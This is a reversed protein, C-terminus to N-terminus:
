GNFREKRDGLFLVFQSCPVTRITQAFIRFVHIFTVVASYAQFLKSPILNRNDLHQIDTVTSYSNETDTCGSNKVRKGQYPDEPTNQLLAVDKFLRSGGLVAPRFKFPAKGHFFHQDEQANGDAPPYSPPKPGM